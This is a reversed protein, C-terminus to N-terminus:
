SIMGFVHNTKQTVLTPSSRAMLSSNSPSCYKGSQVYLHWTAEPLGPSVRKRASCCGRWLLEMSCICASPLLPVAEARAWTRGVAGAGVGPVLVSRFCWLSHDKLFTPAAAETDLAWLLKLQLKRPGLAGESWSWAEQKSWAEQTDTSGESRRRREGRLM